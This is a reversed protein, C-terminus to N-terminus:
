KDIFWGMYTAKYVQIWDLEIIEEWSFRELTWNYKNKYTYNWEQYEQPWRCPFDKPINRLSWQLITYIWQINNASSEVWGYYTMMWLPKNKYFVVERWGYPEWWFYNDHYKWDWETYILTTSNDQEKIKTAKEWAAYTNVKAQILFESLNQTPM